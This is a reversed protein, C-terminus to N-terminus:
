SPHLLWRDAARFYAIIKSSHLEFIVHFARLSPITEIGRHPLGDGNRGRLQLTPDLCVVERMRALAPTRALDIM